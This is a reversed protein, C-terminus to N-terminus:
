ERREGKSCYDNAKFVCCWPYSVHIVEHSWYSTPQFPWHECDECRVLQEIPEGCFTAFEEVALINNEPAHVIYEKM